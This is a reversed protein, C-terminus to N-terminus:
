KASNGLLRSAPIAPLSTSSLALFRRAPTVNESIGSILGFNNKVPWFGNSDPGGLTGLPVQQGYLWVTALQVGTAENSSGMVWGRNNITNGSSVTGGLTGLDVVGYHSPQPSPSDQAGLRSTAALAAFFGAACVCGLIRTRIPFKMDGGNQNTQFRLSVIAPRRSVCRFLCLAEPSAGAGTPVTSRNALRPQFKASM